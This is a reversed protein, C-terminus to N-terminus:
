KKGLTLVITTKGKQSTDVVIYLGQKGKTFALGTNDKQNMEWELAWGKGELAKKYFSVVEQASGTGELVAHSGDTTEMATVVKAKSYVPVIEKLGKPYDVQASVLASVSFFSFGMALAVRTKMQLRRQHKALYFVIEPFLFAELSGEL